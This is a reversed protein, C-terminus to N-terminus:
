EEPDPIVFSVSTGARVESQISLGSGYTQILRRNTNYLGIGRKDKRPADLLEQVKERNMGMGNDKVQILTSQEQRIIHIEVTGGKAIPIIGHQVANEVLPQITLPPLLLNADQDVNWIVHLRNGHREKEVYLYARVLELEETLSVFKGSNQYQFSIQLYSSFAENLKRMRDVDIESLAHISNLTNFLFHPHIQAQLYAAEMRLRENVSQKLTILSQIRYKLEMPDVPKTVYDNAGARFGAYMDSPESRATLLLVPLESSSYRERIMRTLKYGSIQPMMVDAIVLDWPKTGLLELAEGASTALQLHYPETMLISALVRLNVLNDDVALINMQEEMSPAEVTLLPQSNLNNRSAAMEEYAGLRETLISPSIEIDTSDALPLTFTFTSGKGVESHVTMSGGHLEVLERSISLGLGIGNTDGYGPDGQEYPLFVRQQTEQDMGTGTDTVEIIMQGNKAIASVAIIGEETHKIANHLVNMLIQVLRKEDAMVLPLAESIDLNMKLEVAKGEVLYKLIDIVGNVVSPLSLPEAHLIIRKERLRVADLLDNLLHSMQRGVKILLNMDEASRSDMHHQERDTVSQAINMIGHLPTRLEHSTQALFRDKMKDAKQLQRNLKSIKDANRFYRKFWYASFGIIASIVDVPYYVTPLEQYKNLAGWIVSSFIGSAALLLFIADDRSAAVMRGFMYISIVVPLIYYISFVKYEVTWFVLSAPAIAIFGSYLLLSIGYGIFWRSRTKITFSRTMKLIFFSLWSYSLISIKLDWTYNISLWKLLLDDDSVVITVSATLLLLFFDLLTWEKPNFLFLICSYLGHLILVVFTILQLDISLGREDHIAESSGLKISNVIGGKLPHENNAVRIILDIEQTHNAPAYDVVFPSRAPSYTDKGDEGTKGMEGVKLGNIEVSASAQIQQIWFSLPATLAPDILIRLRYTGTGYASESEKTQSGQWNGPVQVYRHQPHTQELEQKTALKDPYFAWEGDLTISKSHILDWSRLDLVGQSAKPHHPPVFAEIWYWRISLLLSLFVTIALIYQVIKKSGMHYTNKASRTPM